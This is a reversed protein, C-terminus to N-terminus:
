ALVSCSLISGDGPLLILELRTATQDQLVQRSFLALFVPCPDLAWSVDIFLSRSFMSSSHWTCWIEAQSM